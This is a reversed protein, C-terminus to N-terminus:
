PVMWDLVNLGSVNAYDSTNHTVLTFGYHLATAAILLDMDPAPLGNDLLGARTEGFRRAVEATVDLVQVDNLFTLLDQLRKPSAKARLVWTYLEGLTVTSIHLNGAYQLFRNTVQPNGKLHASCTDTDVLFSM